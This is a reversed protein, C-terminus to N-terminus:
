WYRPIFLEDGVSIKSEDEIQNVVKKNVDLNNIVCYIGGDQAHEFVVKVDRGYLNRVALLLIFKASRLYITNGYHSSRDFFEVKCPKKLTESLDMFDNDVKVGVIDYAFDNKFSESIEYFSVGEEFEYIKDKVSVKLKRAM